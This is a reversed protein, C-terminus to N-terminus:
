PVLMRLLLALLLTYLCFYPFSLFFLAVYTFFSISGATIKPNNEKELLFVSEPKRGGGGGNGSISIGSSLCVALKGECRGLLGLIRVFIVMLPGV